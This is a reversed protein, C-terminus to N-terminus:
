AKSVMIRVLPLKASNAIHTAAGIRDSVIRIRDM